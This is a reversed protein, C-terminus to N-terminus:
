MWTPGRTLSKDLDYGVKWGSHASSPELLLEDGCVPLLPEFYHIFSVFDAYMFVFISMVVDLIMLFFLQPNSIDLSENELKPIKFESHRM